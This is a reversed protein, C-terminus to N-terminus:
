RSEPCRACAALGTSMGFHAPYKAGCCSMVAAQGSSMQQAARVTQVMINMLPHICTQPELVPLHARHYIVLGFQTFNRLATKETASGVAHGATCVAQQLSGWYLRQQRSPRTCHHQKCCSTHDRAHMRPLTTCVPLVAPRSPQLSSHWESLSCLQM